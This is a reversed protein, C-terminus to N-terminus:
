PVLWVEVRGRRPLALTSGFVDKAIILSHSDIWCWWGFPLVKLILRSSNERFATEDRIDVLSNLCGSTGNIDVNLSDVSLPRRVRDAQTFAFVPLLGDRFIDHM